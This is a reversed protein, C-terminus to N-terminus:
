TKGFTNLWEFIERIFKDKTPFYRPFSEIKLIKNQVRNEGMYDLFSSYQYKNLYELVGKKDRIGKEKWDKQILKVSNLHIYSFLYKLHRDNAIHQSKFKGEFLGGTREYKRNYYMVYATLVKQIFKSVSGNETQTVLVHFHNPMLCYAVIDVLQDKIDVEYIIFSNNRSLDFLNFRESTNSIYLLNIFRMYDDKDHFIKQKSNGRNYIHYYEGPVFPTKRISM